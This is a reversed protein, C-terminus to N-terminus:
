NTTRKIRSVYLIKSKEVVHELYGNHKLLNRLDDVESSLVEGSSCLQCARTVLSAILGLKQYAPLCSDWKLYLTTNARKRYLSTELKNDIRKINMDLFPINKGHEFEIIFKRTKHIHKIKDLIELTDDEKGKIVVFIGDVYIMWKRVKNNQSTFIKENELKCMFLHTLAPTLPSGM